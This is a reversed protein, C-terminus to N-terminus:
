GARAQLFFFLERNWAADAAAHHQTGTQKPYDKRPVGLQDAWQKLDHCFMPYGKPLDIMRGFLQAFLVWDYDAFYGWVVPQEEPPMFLRIQEAMERRTLKPGTMHPIVNAKVWDGAAGLDAEANEAYFGRGEGDVLALSLLVLPKEHGDEVFETDLFYHRM